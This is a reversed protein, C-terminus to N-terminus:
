ELALYRAWIEPPIEKVLKGGAMDLVTVASWGTALDRKSRLRSIAHEFHFRGEWRELIKHRTTVVLEDGYAAPQLYECHNVVVPTAIRHEVAWAMPFVDELVALRGLEFWRLYHANHVVHMMDVHHFEVVVQARRTIVRSVAGVKAIV